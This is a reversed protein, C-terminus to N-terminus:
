VNAPIEFMGNPFYGGLFIEDSPHSVVEWYIRSPQQGPKRGDDAPPAQPLRAESPARAELGPATVWRNALPNKKRM